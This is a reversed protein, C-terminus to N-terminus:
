SDSLVKTMLYRDHVAFGRKRYLELAQLNDRSVELRLARIGLKRAETEVFTLAQGGIGRSRFAPILYLEDVFADKGGFELIYGFTLFVYGIAGGASEILWARGLGPDALLQRVARRAAEPDFPIHDFAYYDTMMELLRDVDHIALPSFKLQGTM